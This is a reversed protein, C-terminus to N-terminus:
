SIVVTKPEQTLLRSCLGIYVYIYIYIKEIIECNRIVIVANQVWEGMRLLSPEPNVEEGRGAWCLRNLSCCTYCTSPFGLARMQEVQGNWFRLLLIEPNKVMRVM